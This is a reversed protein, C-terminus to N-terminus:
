AVADELVIGEMLAVDTPRGEIGISVRAIADSFTNTGITLISIMAAPALTAWPNTVLGYRNEAIM